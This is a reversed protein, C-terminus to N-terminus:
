GSASLACEKRFGGRMARFFSNVLQNTPRGRVVESVLQAVWGRSNAAGVLEELQRPFPSNATVYDTFKLNLRLLLSKVEDITFANNVAAAFEFIERGTM